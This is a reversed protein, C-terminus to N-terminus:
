VKYTSASDQLQVFFENLKSTQSALKGQTRREVEKLTAMYVWELKLLNQLGLGQDECRCLLYWIEKAMEGAGLISWM